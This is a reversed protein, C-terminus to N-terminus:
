FVAPLLSILSKRFDRCTPVKKIRLVNLLISGDGQLHYLASSNRLYLSLCVSISHFFIAVQGQAYQAHLSPLVDKHFPTCFLASIGPRSIVSTKAKTLPCVNNSTSSLKQSVTCRYLEAFRGSSYRVRIPECSENSKIRM